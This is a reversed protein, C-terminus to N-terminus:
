GDNDSEITSDLIADDLGDVDIGDLDDSETDELIVKATAKGFKSYIKDKLDAVVTPSNRIFKLANDIGNGLTIEGYKYFNGSKTILGYLKGMDFLSGVADLGCIPRPDVGVCIDFEATTFPAACKNKVLRIKPRFGYVIDGDTLKSGKFIEIRMSTYFRLAKGGPTTEPSNHILVGNNTGGAFYCNNDAVSIDYKGRQKMQKCSATRINLVTAYTTRIKKIMNLTFDVYKGHLKQPLKRCMCPPIFACINEAILDSISRDFTIRGGYSAHHYLGLNDLANSIQDIKDFDGKFRKISLDYRDRLYVADDMIWVAFGIWSFNNLLCMPDRNQYYEKHLALSTYQNSSYSIRDNYSEKYFGLDQLKSVKWEAYELDINDQIRLNANLHNGAKAIHSDGSLVGYLFQGFVGDFIDDYKTIIKSGLKLENAKIWGTDTFVKHDPTVTITMFGNKNGPGMIKISLFDNETEIDGNYYWDVIPKPEITATKENYSWVDGKIKNDVIKRITSSRGDVFNIMTDSHVCGFQIGIKNRVQNIFIVTTKTKNAKGTITRLGKSMMRAQAGIQADGIDSEIEILPVLNAVSDVIVLDVLGSSVIRKLINFAEEGSNPQSFLLSDIDVGCKAAWEVDFAQEVDIFAAVGHRKKKEFYHKQCAAIFQICSTTKGSSENGYLEIIRGQPIGGCGMACDISAIGTPFIDVNVITGRGLVITGAGHESNIASRLEDISSLTGCDLSKKKKKKSATTSVADDTDDFDDTM